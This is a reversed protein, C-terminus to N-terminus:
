DKDGANLTHFRLWQVALSIWLQPDEKKKKKISLIVSLCFSINLIKTEVWAREFLMFHIAYSVNSSYFWISFTSGIRHSSVKKRLLVILNNWWYLTRENGIARIYEESLLPFLFPICITIIFSFLLTFLFFKSKKKEQKEKEKNKLYNCSEPSTFM